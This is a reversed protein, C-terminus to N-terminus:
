PGVEAPLVTAGPPTDSSPHLHRDLEAVSWLGPHDCVVLGLLAQKLQISDDPGHGPTRQDRM